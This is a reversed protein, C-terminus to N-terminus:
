AGKVRVKLAVPGAESVGEVYAVEVGRQLTDFDGAILASRHFYLLGGAGNMVLGSEAGPAIEAIQGSFEGAGDHRAAGKHDALKRKVETLQVAAIRFAETIANHLDPRQFKRQLRDPEHSVVIDKRGPIGIEIRVVPPVTHTSNDARQEVRVRCFSMRGYIQALAAIHDRIQADAWDSREVHLFAVDTQVQM